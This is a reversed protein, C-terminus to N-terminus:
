PPSGESPLRRAARSLPTIYKDLYTLSHFPNSEAAELKAELEAVRGALRLNEAFLRSSLDVPEERVPPSPHGWMPVGAPLEMKGAPLHTDTM